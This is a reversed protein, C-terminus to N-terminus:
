TLRHRASHYGAWKKAGGEFFLSVQRFAGAREASRQHPNGYLVRRVARQAADVHEVQGDPFVDVVWQRPARPKEDSGTFAAFGSFTADQQDAQLAAQAWTASPM